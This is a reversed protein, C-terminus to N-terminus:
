GCAVDNFTDDGADKTAIVSFEGDVELVVAHLDAFEASEM